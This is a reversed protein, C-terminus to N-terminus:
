HCHEPGHLVSLETWLPLALQPELAFGHVHATRADDHHYDGRLNTPFFINNSSSHYQVSHQKLNDNSKYYYDRSSIFISNPLPLTKFLSMIEFIDSFNMAKEFM